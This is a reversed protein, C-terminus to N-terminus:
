CKLNYNDVVYNIVFAFKVVGYIVSLIQAPVHGKWLASVGENHIILRIATHIRTYKLCGDGSNQLQFRIKLVDLPQGIARSGVGSTVGALTYCLPHIGKKYDTM